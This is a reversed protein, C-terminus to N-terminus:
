VIESTSGRKKTTRAKAWALADSLHYMKRRGWGFYEPGGGKSAFKALTSEKIPYGAATLEAAIEKRTRPRSSSVSPEDSPITRM